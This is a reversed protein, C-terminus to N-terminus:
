LDTQDIRNPHKKEAPRTKRQITKPPKSITPKTSRDVTPQSRYNRYNHFLQARMDMTCPYRHDVHKFRDQVYLHHMILTLLHVTGIHMTKSHCANLAIDRLRKPLLSTGRAFDGGRVVQWDLCNHFTISANKRLSLRLLRPLSEKHAAFSQLM